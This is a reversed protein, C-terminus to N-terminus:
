FTARFIRKRPALVGLEMATFLVDSMRRERTTTFALNSHEACARVM